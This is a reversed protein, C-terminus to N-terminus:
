CRGRMMECRKEEEGRERWWIAEMIEDRQRELKQRDEWKELKEEVRREQELEEEKEEYRELVEM